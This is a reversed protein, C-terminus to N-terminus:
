SYRPGTLREVRLRLRHAKVRLAAPSISLEAALQRRTAIHDDGYYKLLMVREAPQLAALSRDLADLLDHTERDRAATLAAGELTANQRGDERRAEYFIMRAVGRAYAGFSAQPVLKGEQLTRALRDVTRDALEEPNAAGWWRLLGALRDHLRSYEQAALDRDDGLATLLRELGPATLTWPTSM